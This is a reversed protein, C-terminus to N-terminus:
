FIIDIVFFPQGGARVQLLIFGFSIRKKSGDSRIFSHDPIRFLQFLKLVSSARGLCFVLYLDCWFLIVTLFM